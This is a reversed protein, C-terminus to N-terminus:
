VTSQITPRKKGSKNLDNKVDWVFASFEWNNMKVWKNGQYFDSKGLDIYNAAYLLRIINLVHM